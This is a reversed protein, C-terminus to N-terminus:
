VTCSPPRLPRTGNRENGECGACKADNVLVLDIMNKVKVGDQGRALRTYKHLSKHRFYTKGMCLERETCFEVVRRGNDNEGSVGFAGIISARERDGIM